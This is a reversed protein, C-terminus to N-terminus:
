NDFCSKYPILYEASSRGSPRPANFTKVFLFATLLIYFSVIGIRLFDQKKFFKNRLLVLNYCFLGNGCIMYYCACRTLVEINRGIGQIICAILFNFLFFEKSKNQHNVYCFFIVLFYVLLLFVFGLGSGFQKQTGQISTISVYAKCLSAIRSPVFPLSAITRLSLRLFANSFMRFFIAVFVLFVSCWLPMRVTTTFYLPFAILASIHFQMALLVFFLWHLIKKKIIYKAGLVLIAVAIAQRVAEINLLVYDDCFYIFLSFFPFVSNKSIHKFLIVAIFLSVFFQMFYYNRSISGFFKNIFIYGAETSYKAAYGSSSAQICEDFIKKYSIQDTGIQGRCASYATLAFLIFFLIVKKLIDYSKQVGIAPSIINPKTSELFSFFCLSFLITYYYM